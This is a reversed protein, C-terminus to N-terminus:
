MRWSVTFLVILGTILSYMSLPTFSAAELPAAHTMRCNSVGPPRSVAIRSMTCDMRFEGTGTMTYTAGLPARAAEAPTRIVIAAWTAAMAGPVFIPAACGTPNPPPLISSVISFFTSFSAAAYALLRASCLPLFTSHATFATRSLSDTDAWFASSNFIMSKTAELTGSNSSFTSPLSTSVTQPFFVKFRFSRGTWFDSIPQLYRSRSVRLLGFM